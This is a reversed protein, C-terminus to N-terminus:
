GKDPEGRVSYGEGERDLNDMVRKTTAFGGNNFFNRDYPLIDM